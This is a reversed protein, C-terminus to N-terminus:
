ARRRSAALRALLTELQDIADQPLQKTPVPGIRGSAGRQERGWAIWGIPVGTASSLAIAVSLPLIANREYRRLQGGSKGLTAWHCQPIIRLLVSVRQAMTLESADPLQQGPALSKIASAKSRIDRLSLRAPNTTRTASASLM